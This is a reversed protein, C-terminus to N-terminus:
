RKQEVIGGAEFLNTRGDLLEPNLLEDTEGGGLDKASFVAVSPSHRCALEGHQQPGGELRLLARQAVFFDAYPRSLNDDCEFREPARQPGLRPLFPTHKDPM